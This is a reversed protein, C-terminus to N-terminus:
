AGRGDADTILVVARGGSHKDTQPEPDPQHPKGSIQVRSGRVRVRLWGLVLGLVVALHQYPYIPAWRISVFPTDGRFPKASIRSM